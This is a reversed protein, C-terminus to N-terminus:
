VRLGFSTSLGGKEGQEAAGESFRWLCGSLEGLSISLSADRIGRIAANRRSPYASKASAVGTGARGWAGIGAGDRHMDDAQGIGAEGHARVAEGQRRDLGCV